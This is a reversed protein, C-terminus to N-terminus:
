RRRLLAYVAWAGVLAPLTALAGWLPPFLQDGYESVTFLTSALFLTVVVGGIAWVPAARRGARVSWLAVLWAAVNAVTVAHLLGYLLGAGPDKGHPEYMERAHDLLSAPGTQDVLAAASLVLALGIAGLVARSATPDAARGTYPVPELSHSLSQRM